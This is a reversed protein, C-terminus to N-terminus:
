PKLKFSTAISTLKSASCNFTTQGSCFWDIAITQNSKNQYFYRGFPGRRYTGLETYWGLFQHYSQKNANTYTNLDLIPNYAGSESVSIQTGEDNHLYKHTFQNRNEILSSIKSYDLSTNFINIMISEFGNDKQINTIWVFQSDAQVIRFNNPIDISFGYSAMLLNEVSDSYKRQNVNSNPFYGEIGSLGLNQNIQILAQELSKFNTKLWENIEQDIDIVLVKQGNGWVNEYLKAHFDNKFLVENKSPIQGSNGITEAHNFFVLIRENQNVEEDSKPATVIYNLCSEYKDDIPLHTDKSANQELYSTISAEDDESTYISVNASKAQIPNNSPTIEESRNCSIFSCSAVLAFLSLNSYKFINM